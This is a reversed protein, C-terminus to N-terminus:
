QVEEGDKKRPVPIVKKRKAQGEQSQVEEKAGLDPRELEVNGKLELTKAHYQYLKGRSIVYVFDDSATIALAGGGQMMPPGGKPPFKDSPGGEGFGRNEDRPSEKGEQGKPSNGRAEKGDQSFDERREKPPNEKEFQLLTKAKLKLTKEDYKLLQGQSVVFIAGNAACVATQGGGGMMQPPLGMPRQERGSQKQEEKRPGEESQGTSVTPGVWVICTFSVFVILIFSSIKKM